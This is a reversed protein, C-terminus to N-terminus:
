ALDQPAFATESQSERPRERGELAMELALVQGWECARDFEAAYSGTLRERRKTAKAYVRLSFTPDRHGAQEAISVPSDGLVARLSIFTRRLSHATVRESMPEIGLKALQENADRIAKKLRRAVNRPTQRNVRGNRGRALFVPDDQGAATRAKHETLEQLLGVPLDVQRGAGAETKAEQVTLTGTALNIDRWDLACAEGVRLGAGALTAILPRMRPNAAEILAMVQEPEVWSRRPKTAKVRRKRSAAPNRTAYDYEVAVDLIQSLRAITSNIQNPAIRGERLKATKYRDVDEATISDLSFDAFFPLLHHALVWTYAEITAPRLEPTRDALWRSAFEHFSPVDRPAEAPERRYSRPKWIGRRVDAMVNALEEEARQRTWGDEATGLTVYRRKRYAM